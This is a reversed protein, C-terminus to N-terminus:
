LFYIKSNACTNYLFCTYFAYIPLTTPWTPVTIWNDKQNRLSEVWNHGMAKESTLRNDARPDMLSRIFFTAASSTGQKSHKESMSSNTHYRVWLIPSRSSVGPKADRHAFGERHMYSLGEILQFSIERTYAEIIPWNKIMYNQLDGLPSNEMAVYLISCM